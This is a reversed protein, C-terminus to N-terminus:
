IQSKILDSTDTQPWAESITKKLYHQLYIAQRDWSYKQEVIKRGQKGLIPLIERNQYAQLIGKAIEGPDNSKIYFGCPQQGIVERHAEIDTIIVPKEMALYEMLKLPSSVRWWTIDPFPLIGVDALAVYEPVKEYPVSDHLIVHRQLKYKAILENLETKAVGDGLLFFVLDPYDDKLIRIAEVTEQLGRNRSLVGHYMIIFKNNLDPENPLENLRASNFRSLSVGSSWIGILNKDIHYEQHVLNRLGPTIVTLGDFLYKAILLSIKYEADKFRRKIINSFEVPVTRIDLVFKCKILGLKSLLALPVLSMGSSGQVLIVDPKKLVLYYCVLFFVSMYFTVLSLYYRNIVPIYKIINKPFQFDPKKNLPFPVALQVDNGLKLLSNVMELRSTSALTVDLRAQTIWLIKMSYGVNFLNKLNGGVTLQRSVTVNRKATGFLM